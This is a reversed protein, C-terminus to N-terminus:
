GSSTTAAVPQLGNVSGDTSTSETPEAVDIALMADVAQNRAEELEANAKAGQELLKVAKTPDLGNAMALAAGVATGYERVLGPKMALGARRCGSCLRGSPEPRGQGDRPHLDDWGMVISLTRRIATHPNTGTAAQYLGLDGYAEELDALTNGDFRIWVKETAPDGGKGPVVEWLGDESQQTSNIEVCVGKNRLVAASHNGTV